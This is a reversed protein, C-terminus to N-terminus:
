SGERVQRKAVIPPRRRGVGGGRLEDTGQTQATENAETKVVNETPKAGTVQPIGPRHMEFRTQWGSSSLNHEVVNVRFTGSLFHPEQRRATFFAMHLLSRPLVAHTGRVEAEAAYTRHRIEEFAERAQREFDEQTRALIPFVHQFTEKDLPASFSGVQLGSELKFDSQFSASADMKRQPGPLGALDTSAIRVRKGTLSDVSWYVADAGGFVAAIFKLDSPAFSIVDGMADQAFTYSAAIDPELFEDTRFHFVGDVDFWARYKGNEATASQARKILHQEIFNLDSTSADKVLEDTLGPLATREVTLAGDVRRNLEWENEEALFLVIDSVRTGAPFSRAKRRYAQQYVPAPLLEFEIHTGEATFTPTWVAYVAEYQPWDEIGSVGDDWGWRFRIRRSRGSAAILSLIFDGSRDFLTLVGTWAGTSKLTITLSEFFDGQLAVTDGSVSDVLLVEILLPQNADHGVNSVRSPL